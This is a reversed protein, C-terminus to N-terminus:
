ADAQETPTNSTDEAVVNDVQNPDTNTFDQEDKQFMDPNENVM